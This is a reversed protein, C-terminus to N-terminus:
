HPSRVTTLKVPSQRSWRHKIKTRKLLTELGMYYALAVGLPIAKGYVNVDVYEVPPQGWREDVLTTFEGIPVSVTNDIRYILGDAGHRYTTKRQSYVWM